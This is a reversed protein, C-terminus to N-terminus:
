AFVCGNNGICFWKANIYQLTCADGRAAFTITGTGSSKWGANTVTIVMDGSTAYMAFVKIQGEVGAALTATEAAATTFYSTNVALNAGASAALDESTSNFSQLLKNTENITVSTGNNSTSFDFTYKGAAAFTIVRTTSNLGRIGLYNVDVAAPLTVTHAASTLDIELRMFGYSNSVPFKTNDFALTISGGTALKQYHGSAYNLTVTGSVSGLNAVTASLDQIKAYYILANDLDNITDGGVFVSNAQLATIEDRAFEFNRKTNGFNDHFGQVDNDQGRIPYDVDINNPNIQSTM